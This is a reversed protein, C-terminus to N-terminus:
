RAVGPAFARPRIRENYLRGMSLEGGDTASWDDLTALDFLIVGPAGSAYTADTTTGLSAGNKFMELTTGNVTLKILDGNVFASAPSFAALETEVGNDIRAIATHGAGNVGDTYCEYGDDGSLRVAVGAYQTSSVLAGVVGQAEQNNGWTGTYSSVKLTAGASTLVNSALNCGGGVHSAWPAAVPTENARNFNDSATTM